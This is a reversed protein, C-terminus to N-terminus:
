YTLMPRTIALEISNDMYTIIDILWLSSLVSLSCNYFTQLSLFTVKGFFLRVQLVPSPETNSIQTNNNLDEKNEAPIEESPLTIEVNVPPTRFLM